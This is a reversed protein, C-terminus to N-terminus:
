KSFIKWKVGANLDGFRDYEGTLSWDDTMKYEVSYTQKGEESVDEGSRIILREEGGGGPNLKQWFSKGLFLALKSAREENSFGFDSRPIQGTTLMLVIEESTLPPVSSFEIVPEDAAGEAQMTIDYGFVRGKALLFLHPMYPHESTLSVLAQNVGLTGFPFIIRGSSITAEGLAMPEELTGTVHFNASVQGHFFPSRVRMFDVGRVRLDVRWGDVPDQEVSFYPPRKSPSAVRGPVLTAIDQLLVSDELNVMGSIVPPNTEMNSIVLDLDSRLIIDPNRALPVNQGKVTLKLGPFTRALQEESVDVMGEVVVTEGGLMASLEELQVVRGELRVNAFINEVVGITPLPRTSVNTVRLFGSLALGPDVGANINVTGAPAVYEPAFRVFSAVDLNRAVVRATSNTMLYKQVEERRMSWFGQGLPTEATVRVPEGEVEFQISPIRLVEENLVLSGEINRVEPLAQNTRLLDVAAVSFELKGTPQRTTGTVDLQVSPDQLQISALEGVKKWFKENPATRVHFDLNERSALRVPRESSVPHVSVPLFGRATVITGNTGVVDLDSLTLGSGDMEAAFRASVEDFPDQEVSLDGKVAAHLPGQNWDADVGLQALELGSLSRTVFAQFLDPSVNTTAFFIDGSEPWALNASLHLARNEGEWRMSGIRILPRAGNGINTSLLSIEFPQALQLVPEDSKTLRLERVVLNTSAGDVHGAGSLFLEAAGAKALLALQDFQAQQAHWQLDLNLPRIEPARFGSLELRAEHQLNTLPGSARAVLDISDYSVQPPLAEQAIAGQAKITANEIRQEQINGAASFEMVGNTGFRVRGELGEVMPWDVAGEIELSSTELEELGVNQGSLQFNVLPLKEGQELVLNGEIRGKMEIWPLKELEALVDLRSRESLLRGQYNVEIPASASLRLGPAMASLEEVRVSNTDGAAGLVIDVPPLNTASGLPEAHAQLNFTYSDDEWKATLDGTLNQYRELKVLEAPLNFDESRLTAEMPLIGNTSWQANAALKNGKYFTDVQAVVTENTEWARLRTRFDLPHMAFSLQYPEETLRAKIDLPVAEEPWTGAGELRGNEWTITAFTVHRDKFEVVGNLFLAKPAWKKAVEIYQEALQYYDYVGREPKSEEKKERDGHIVVRWGNVVLYEPLDNTKGERVNKLWQWPRFGEIREIKLDFAENTRVLESIAFRGDELREYKKYTVGLREAGREMLPPFWFRATLVVAVLALVLFGLVYLLRRWIRRKAM